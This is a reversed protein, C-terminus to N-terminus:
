LMVRSQNSAAAAVQDSEEKHTVLEVPKEVARFLVAALGGGSRLACAGSTVKMVRLLPSTSVKLVLPVNSKRFPSLRSDILELSM